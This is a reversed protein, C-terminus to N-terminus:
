KKKKPHKISLIHYIRDITDDFGDVIRVNHGFTKRFEKMLDVFQGCALLIQEPSFNNISALSTKLDQHMAELTLEGDDILLPWSDLCITKAKIRHAFTAYALNKTTPKTTLILTHKNALIRKSWFTFGTFKQNKYHHRFYKLSTTSLLYNAFVVLDVKGLYPRLAEEAAKRASKPSKLIQEAHRWDIVRIVEVIPLETELRDAFLEGGFGGDFVVVKLMEYYGKEELESQIM